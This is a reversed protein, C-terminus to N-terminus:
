ESPAASAVLSAVLQAADRDQGPLGTSSRSTSSHSASAERCYRPARTTYSGNWAPPRHLPEPRAAHRDLLESEGGRRDAPQCRRQVQLQPVPRQHQRVLRLKKLLQRVDPQPLGRRPHPPHVVVPYAHRGLWRTPTPPAGAARDSTTPSPPPRGAPRPRPSETARRLRPLSTVLRRRHADGRARRRGQASPLHNRRLRRPGTVRTAGNVM